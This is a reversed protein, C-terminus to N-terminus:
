LKELETKVEQWYHKQTMNEMVNDKFSEYVIVYPHNLKLIEDVAIIAMRKQEVSFTKNKRVNNYRSYFKNVLDIAKEKPTM